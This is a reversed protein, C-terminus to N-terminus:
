IDEFAIGFFNPLLRRMGQNVRPTAFKSTETKFAIEAHTFCDAITAPITVMDIQIASV